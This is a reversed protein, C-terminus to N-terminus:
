TRSLLPDFEAVPRLRGNRLALSADLLELIDDNFSGMTRMAGIAGERTEAQRWPRASTLAEYVDAAGLIQAEFPIADGGIGQPYGSGDIREHHMRIADLPLGWTGLPSLIEAAVVPHDVLARRLELSLPAASGLPLQLCLHGIDHLRAALQLWEQARADLRGRVVMRQVIGAVRKSHGPTGRDTAEHADGLLLFVSLMGRALRHANEHADGVALALASVVRDVIARLEDAQARRGAPQIPKLMRDLARGVRSLVEDEPAPVVLLDVYGATMASAVDVVHGRPLLLMRRAPGASGILRAADLDAILLDGVELEPAAPSPDVVAM